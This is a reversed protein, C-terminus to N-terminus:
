AASSGNTLRWYQPSFGFYNSDGAISSVGIGKSTSRASYMEDDGVVVGMHKGEWLVIDGPQPTDVRSGVKPGVSRAFTSTTFRPGKYIGMDVMARWIIGSCDYYDPGEAGLVYGRASSGLQIVKRSFSNGYYSSVGPNSSTADDPSGLGSSAVNEGRRKSVEGIADTDRSLLGVFLDRIDTAMHETRGVIVQRAILVAAIILVYGAATM